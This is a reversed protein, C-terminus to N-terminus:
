TAGYQASQSGFAPPNILIKCHCITNSGPYVVYGQQDRCCTTDTPDFNFLRARVGQGFVGLNMGLAILVELVIKSTASSCDAALQTDRQNPLAWKIWITESTLQLVLAQQVTRDVDDGASEIHHSSM